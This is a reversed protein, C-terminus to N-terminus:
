IDAPFQLGIQRRAEDLIAMTGYSRAFSNVTSETKEAKILDIFEKAEYYMSPFEETITIDETRGDNYRIEVKELTHLTDIIISGKEGQIESPLYSNSIKSHTIAVHLDPYSLLLSGNGDVGSDLLLGTAQIDQPLGFLSVAPYVGYIGIDMLSGNSFTPNFANLITGEKYKDYRSSYQCYSFSAHRIDGIKHLHQQISKFTPQHTQKVAEMLLVGYTQAAEIMKKIETTNSAIPKECIVHNGYKMFMIAQEAHLSTPSAIYVADIELSEAMEELNTFLFPLDYKAAFEIAKEETRSYVATLQFDPHHQAAEIFRDTIWNTGIVGFRIM